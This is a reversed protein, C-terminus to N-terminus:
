ANAAQRARPRRGEEDDRTGRFRSLAGTFATDLSAMVRAVVSNAM